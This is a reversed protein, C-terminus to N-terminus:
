IEGTSTLLGKGLWPFFFDYEVSKTILKQSSLVFEMMKPDAVLLYQSSPGLRLKVIYNHEKAM